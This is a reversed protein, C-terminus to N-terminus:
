AKMSNKLAGKMKTNMQITIAERLVCRWFVAM